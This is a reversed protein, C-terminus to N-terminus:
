RSQWSMTMELIRAENNLPLARGTWERAGWLADGLKVQWNGKGVYRASMDAALWLRPQTPFRELVIAIAAAETIAPLDVVPTPTQAAPACSSLLLGIFALLCLPVLRRMMAFVGGEENPTGRQAELRAQYELM